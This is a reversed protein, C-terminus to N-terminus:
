GYIVRFIPHLEQWLPVRVSPSSCHQFLAVFCRQRARLCRFRQHLCYAAHSATVASGRAISDVKYGSKKVAKRLTEDDMSANPKLVLNLTKADLDVYVAAVDDRKGFTKNMATACFDCVAGLVKAVVPEGGAALAAALEPHSALKLHSSETQMKDEMKDHDHSAHDGSHDMKSHDMDGHNMQAYVPSSLSLTAIATLTLLTRM